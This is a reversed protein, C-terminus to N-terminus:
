GIPIDLHQHNISRCGANEPIGPHGSSSENGGTLVKPPAKYLSLRSSIVHALTSWSGIVYFRLVPLFREASSLSLRVELQDKVSDYDVWAQILNRSILDLFYAAPVSINSRM